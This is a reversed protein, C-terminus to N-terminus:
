IDMPDCSDCPTNEGYQWRCLECCFQAEWVDCPTDCTDCPCPEDYNM